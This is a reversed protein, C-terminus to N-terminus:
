SCCRKNCFSILYRIEVDSGLYHHAHIFKFIEFKVFLERAKGNFFRNKREVFERAYVFLKARFHFAGAFCYPKNFIQPVWIEPRQVLLSAHM